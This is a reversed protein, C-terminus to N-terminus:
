GDRAVDQPTEIAKRLDALTNGSIPEFELDNGTGVPIDFLDPRPVIRKMLRSGPSSLDLLIERGDHRAQGPMWDRRTQATLFLDKAILPKIASSGPDLGPHRPRISRSQWFCSDQLVLDATAAM